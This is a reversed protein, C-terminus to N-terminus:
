EVVIRRTESESMGGLEDEAIVKWFYSRGKRMEVGAPTRAMTRTMMGYSTTSVESPKPDCDNLTFQKEIPWICQRYTVNGGEPDKSPRWTFTMPQPVDARDGPEGLEPPAPFQNREGAETQLYAEAFGTEGTVMVDQICNHRRQEDEIRGCIQAATKEDLAKQPPPGPPTAPNPPVDCRTPNEFPWEEITFTDTSTGPAYDFLSTASRVRWAKEFTEYLDVYRQHLDAPRPGLQTGDPLAPLWNDPAIAGMVGETARSQRVNVNMYWLQRHQWWNSTLIIV